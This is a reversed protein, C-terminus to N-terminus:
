DTSTILASSVIQFKDAASELETIGLTAVLVVVALLLLLLLLL